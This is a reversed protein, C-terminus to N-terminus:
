YNFTCAAVNDNNHGDVGCTYFDGSRDSVSNISTIQQKLFVFYIENTYGLVDVDYICVVQKQKMTLDFWQVPWKSFSSVSASSNGSNYISWDFIGSSVEQIKSSDFSSHINDNNIKYYEWFKNLADLNNGTFESTQPCRTPPGSDGSITYSITNLTGTLSDLQQFSINANYSNEFAYYGNLFTTEILAICSDGPKLAVKKSIYNSSCTSSSNPLSFQSTNDLQISKIFIDRDSSNKLTFSVSNLSKTLNINQNDASASNTITLLRSKTYIINLHASKTAQLNDSGIGDIIININVEQNSNFQNTSSIEGTQPNITLNSAELSNPSSPDEIFKEASGSKVTPSIHGISKTTESVFVYQDKDYRFQLTPIKPAPNLANKVTVIYKNAITGDTSTVTYTVPSSFNISGSSEDPQQPVQQGNINAVVSSGRSISFTPVLATDDTGYPMTVVINQNSIIGRISGLSYSLITATNDSTHPPNTTSTKSIGCASLLIFGLFYISLFIYNKIKIIPRSM